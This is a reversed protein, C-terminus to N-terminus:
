RRLEGLAAGLANRATLLQEDDLSLEVITLQSPGGPLVLRLRDKTNKKDSRLANLFVNWDTAEEAARIDDSVTALIATVYDALRETREDARGAPHRLAALMGIAVAIGHQVRFGCAAEFAHGFSHGFNLLQREARDFEDVEIFWTKSALVHAILRATADDAAPALAASSALFTDFAEAGRAFCIKVAEALGSVRARQPLSSVFAPDVFIQRPPYFNGVLNKIGGANISSKGGICSDMMAMLTTPVYVWDVGRMYLSCALTAVDQVVGGGVAAVLGGRRLGARNMGVLARECGALTKSAEDGVIEIAAAAVELGDAVVPDILVVDAEAAGRASGVAVHVSYDGLSSHVILESM